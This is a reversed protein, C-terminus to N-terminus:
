GIKKLQLIRLEERAADRLQTTFRALARDVAETAGDGPYKAIAVRVLERAIKAVTTNQAPMMVTSTFDQYKM